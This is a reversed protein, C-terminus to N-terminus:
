NCLPNQWKVLNGDEEWKLVTRAGFYDAMIRLVDDIADGNGHLQNM